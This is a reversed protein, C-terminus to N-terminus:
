APMRHSSTIVHIKNVHCDTCSSVGPISMLVPPNVFAVYEYGRRNEDILQVLWLANDM